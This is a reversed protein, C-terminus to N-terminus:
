ITTQGLLWKIENEVPSMVAIITHRFVYQQKFKEKEEQKSYV